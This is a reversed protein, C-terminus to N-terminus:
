SRSVEIPQPVVSHRQGAIAGLLEQTYESEPKEFVQTTPGEEVLKGRRLVAVRHSLGAVVALDHSVFLYSLGLDKQLTTLLGLIQEQVRM